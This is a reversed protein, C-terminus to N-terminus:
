TYDVRAAYRYDVTLGELLRAECHNLITPELTQQTAQLHVHANPPPYLSESSGGTIGNLITM